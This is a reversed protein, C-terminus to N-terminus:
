KLNGDGGVLDAEVREQRGRRFRGGTIRDHDEAVTEAIAAEAAGGGHRGREGAGAEGGDCDVGDPVAETRLAANGDDADVAMAGGEVGQAAADVQVAVADDFTVFAAGDDRRDRVAGAVAEALGYDVQQM